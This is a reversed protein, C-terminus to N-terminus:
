YEMMASRHREIMESFHQIWTNIQEPDLQSWGQEQVSVSAILDNAPNKKVVVPQPASNLSRCCSQLSWLWSNRESELAVIEQMEAPHKDVSALIEALTKGDSAYVANKCQYTSAIEACYFKMALGLQLVAAELLSRQLHKQERAKGAEGVLLSAFLRKQNVFPLFHNV